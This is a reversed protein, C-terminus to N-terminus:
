KRLVFKPPKLDDLTVAEVMNTATSAAAAVKALITVTTFKTNRDFRSTLELASTPVIHNPMEDVDIGDDCAGSGM